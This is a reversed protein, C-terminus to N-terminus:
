DCLGECSILKGNEFKRKRLENGTEDFDIWDGTKEGLVWFRKAQIMGNKYYFTSEGDIQDNTYVAKAELEGTEFFAESPGNKKGNLYNTKMRINGNQWYMIWLGTELGESFQGKTEPYMTLLEELNDSCDGTESAQFTNYEEYSVAWPIEYMCHIGETEIAAYYREYLYNGEGGQWWSIRSDSTVNGGVLNATNQIIEKAKETDIYAFRYGETNFYTFEPELDSVNTAIYSPDPLMEIITVSNKSPNNPFTKERRVSGKGKVWFYKYESYETSTLYNNNYFKYDVMGKMQICNVNDSGILTESFFLNSEDRYAIMKNVEGDEWHYEAESIISSEKVSKFAENFKFLFYVWDNYIKIKSYNWYIGNETIIEECEAVLILEKGLETWEEIFAEYKMRDTAPRSIKWYQTSSEGNQKTTTFKFLYKEPNEISSWYYDLLNENKTSDDNIEILDLNDNQVLQSTFASVKLTSYITLVFVLIIKAHSFKFLQKM